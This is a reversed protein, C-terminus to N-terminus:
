FILSPLRINTSSQLELKISTSKPIYGYVSENLVVVPATQVPNPTGSSAISVVIPTIDTADM